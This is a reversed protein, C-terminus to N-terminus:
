EAPFLSVHLPSEIHSLSVCACISSCERAKLLYARDWDPSDCGCESPLVEELISVHTLGEKKVQEGLLDLARTDPDGATDVGTDQIDNHRSPHYVITRHVKTLTTSKPIPQVLTDQALERAFFLLGACGGVLVTAVAISIGQWGITAM